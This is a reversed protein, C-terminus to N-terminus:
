MPAPLAFLKGAFEDLGCTPIGEWCTRGDFFLVVDVCGCGGCCVQPAVTVTDGCAVEASLGTSQIFECFAALPV